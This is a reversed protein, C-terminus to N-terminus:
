DFYEKVKEFGGYEVGSPLPKISMSCLFKLIKKCDDLSNIKDTNLEHVTYAAKINPKHEAFLKAEEAFLKAELQRYDKIM